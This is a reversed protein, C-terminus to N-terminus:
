ARYMAQSSGPRVSTSRFPISRRGGVVVQLKDAVGPANVWYDFQVGGTQPGFYLPNHSRSNNTSSLQLYREGGSIVATGGSAHYTWGPIDNSGSGGFEFDGNFVDASVRPPSVNGQFVYEVPLMGRDGGGIASFAFGANDHAPVGTVGYWSEPFSTDGDHNRGAGSFGSYSSSFPETVTGYYWTHVDLHEFFSGGGSLVSEPIQINFAGDAIVGNFDGDLEYLGDQRFYNDAFGVNSYTFLRSNANANNSVYGIDSMSSAPHPDLSTVQEITTLPFNQGFRSVTQSNLVAGRSHGIFHFDLDTCTTLDNCALDKFSNGAFDGGLNDNAQVLSAFLHDAAADLWGNEFFNSETSWDYLLVTHDDASYNSNWITPAAPEWLGTSANHLLLSGVNRDMLAGDARDLIAQAMSIEWDPIGTSTQFGHTIITVGGTLMMRCELQEATALRM